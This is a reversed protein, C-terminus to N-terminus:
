LSKLFKKKEHKPLGQNRTKKIRSVQEYIDVSLNLYYPVGESAKVIVNRIDEEEIYEKLFQESYKESLDEIPYEKM